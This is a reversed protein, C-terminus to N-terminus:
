SSESRWPIPERAQLVKGPMWALNPLKKKSVSAHITSYIILCIPVHLHTFRSIIRFLTTYEMKIHNSIEASKILTQPRQQAAKCCYLFSKDLRVQAECWAIIPIHDSESDWLESCIPPLNTKRWIEIFQWDKQASLWKPSQFFPCKICPVNSLTFCM